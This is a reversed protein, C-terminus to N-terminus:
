RFGSRRFRVRPAEALALGKGDDGVIVGIGGDESTVVEFRVRGAFEPEALAGATIADTANQLLDRLFVEEGPMSISESLVKLIGDLHVLFNEAQPTEPTRPEIANLTPLIELTTM